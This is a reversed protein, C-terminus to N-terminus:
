SSKLNRILKGWEDDNSIDQKKVGHEAMWKIVKNEARSGVMQQPEPIGGRWELAEFQAKVYSVPALGLRDATDVIDVFYRYKDPEDVYNIINGTKEYIFDVYYKYAFKTSKPHEDDEIIQEAEYRLNIFRAKGILASLSFSNMLQMGIRIYEKYGDKKGLKFTECFQNCLATCERALTYEKTGDLFLGLGRFRNDRHSITKVIKIFYAVDQQSALKLSETRKRFKKPTDLINRNTIRYNVGSSLLHNVLLSPHIGIENSEFFAAIIKKLDTRKIHLSPERM